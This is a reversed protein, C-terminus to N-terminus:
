EGEMIPVCTVNKDVKRCPADTKSCPTGVAGASNDPDSGDAKHPYSHCCGKGRRPAMVSRLGCSGDKKASCIYMM